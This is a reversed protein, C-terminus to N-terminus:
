KLLVEAVKMEGTPTPIPDDEEDSEDEFDVNGDDNEEDEDDSPPTQRCQQTEPVFPQTLLQTFVNYM